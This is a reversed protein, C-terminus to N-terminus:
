AAACIIKQAESATGVLSGTQLSRDTDKHLRALPHLSHIAVEAMFILRSVHKRKRCACLQLSHVFTVDSYRSVDGSLICTRKAVRQRVLYFDEDKMAHQMEGSVVMLSVGSLHCPFLATQARSQPQRM